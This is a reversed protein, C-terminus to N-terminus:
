SFLLKFSAILLVGALVYMITSQKYRNSGFYAGFIGGIIAASLWIFHQTSFHIGTSFTAFLGAVSNCVIFLSSVAATEKASSWALLLLIPSLFIGGGINLFGSLLGIVAGIFLAIPLSLEKRNPQEKAFNTVLRVVPFLLALGLIVKYMKEDVSITSGIFAAPISTVLFPWTLKWKFYGAKYFQYFAISAIVVNLVLVVPKYTALPISFFTLVAIYGSAGGHGVSAYLFAVLLLLLPILIDIYAMNQFSYLYIYCPFSDSNDITVIFFM